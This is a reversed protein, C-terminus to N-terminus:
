PRQKRNNKRHCVCVCMAAVCGRETERQRQRRAVGFLAAARSGRTRSLQCRTKQASPPTWLKQAKEERAPTTSRFVRLISPELPSSHLPLRGHPLLMSREGGYTRTTPKALLRLAALQAGTADGAADLGSVRRRRSAAATLGAGGAVRPPPSPPPSAARSPPSPSRLLPRDGSPSIDLPDPPELELSSSCARAGPSGRSRWDSEAETAM